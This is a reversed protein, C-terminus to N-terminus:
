EVTKIIQGYGSDIEIIEPLIMHGKVLNNLQSQCPWSEVKVQPTIGHPVM